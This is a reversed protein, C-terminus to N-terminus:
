SRRRDSICLEAALLLILIFCPIYYREEKERVMKTGFDNKQQDRIAGTIDKVGAASDTLDFYKGGTESAIKKLLDEDLKSRVLEGSSDRVLTGGDPTLPVFEGSSRGIGATYIAVGNKKLEAAAEMVKGENDEGDSILLMMKAATRKKTFVENALNLAKGMDTGQMGVSDSGAAALFLHFAGLDATLPCQVFASGAFLIIGARDGRLSEATLRIADKARALRSPAVDSADMSRSVDLVILLDTGEKHVERFREGWQPRLFTVAFFVVACALLIEKALLAGKSRQLIVNGNQDGPFLRRVVFRRRWAYFGLCLLAAAAFAAIYIIYGTNAFSM